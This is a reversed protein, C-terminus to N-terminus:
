SAMASCFLVPLFCMCRWFVESHQHRPRAGGSILWRLRCSWLLGEVDRSGRPASDGVAPLLVHWCLRRVARCCQCVSQLRSSWVRSSACVEFMNVLHQPM